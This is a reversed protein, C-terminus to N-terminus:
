QCTSCEENDSTLGCATGASIPTSETLSPDLGTYPCDEDLLAGCRPCSGDPLFAPNTQTCNTPDSM